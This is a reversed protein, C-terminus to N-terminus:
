PKLHTGDIGSKKYKNRDLYMITAEVRNRVGLKVFIHHLHQEVTGTTIHLLRGIEKNALGQVVLNMVETERSSLLASSKSM